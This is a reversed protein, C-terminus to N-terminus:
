PAEARKNNACMMYLGAAMAPVTLPSYLGLFYGAALGSATGLGASAVKDPLSDTKDARQAVVCNAVFAGAVAGASASVDSPLGFWWKQAAVARALLTAM